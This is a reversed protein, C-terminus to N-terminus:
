RPSQRRRRRHAGQRHHPIRERRPACVATETRGAARHTEGRPQPAHHYRRDRARHQASHRRGARRPDPAEARAGDGPRDCAAAAPRGVSRRRAAAADEQAGPVMRLHAGSRTSKRAAGRASASVCIRKSPSSRFSRAGRRCTPSAWGRAATPRSRRCSARSTPASGYEDCGLRDAAPGHHVQAAHDQGHRQPGDPLHMVRAAGAPGRGVPHPQRRLVPQSRPHRAHSAVRAEGLYVERVKPDNQVVDM